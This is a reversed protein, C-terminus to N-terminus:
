HEASPRASGKDEPGRRSEPGEVKQQQTVRPAARGRASCLTMLRANVRIIAGRTLVQWREAWRCSPFKRLAGTVEWGTGAQRELCGASGFCVLGFGLGFGFGGLFGGSGVSCAGGGFDGLGRRRSGGGRGAAGKRLAALPVQHRRPPVCRCRSGRSPLPCNGISFHQTHTLPVPVQRGSLASRPPSPFLVLPGSFGWTRLSPSDNRESFVEFTTSALPWALAAAAM